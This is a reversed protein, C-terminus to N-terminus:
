DSEDSDDSDDSDSQLLTRAVAQSLEHSRCCCQRHLWCGSNCCHDAAGHPRVAPCPATLRTSAAPAVHRLEAGVDRCRAKITNVLRGATNPFLHLLPSGLPLSPRAHFGLWVRKGRGM